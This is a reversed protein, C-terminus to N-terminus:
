PSRVPDFAAAIATRRVADAHRAVAPADLRGAPLEVVLALSRPLERQQWSSATGRLGTDPYRRMSLRSTREYTRALAQRWAGDPRIVMTAHQHYWITVDPRVRRVLAMVARTEPESAARRGPYYTDFPRGGGRWSGPFNRNLDVGRANQRTGRAAGDVNLGHITWYRVRRPPLARELTRVVPLGATENGHIVGVVLVDVDADRRGRVTVTIPRGAVSTGIREVRREFGAAPAVIAAPAVTALM